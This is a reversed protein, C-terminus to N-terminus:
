FVPLFDLREFACKESGANPGLDPAVRERVSHANGPEFNNDM